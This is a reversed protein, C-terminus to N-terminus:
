QLKITSFESMNEESVLNSWCKVDNPDGYRICDLAVSFYSLGVISQKHIM